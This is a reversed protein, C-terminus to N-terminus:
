KEENHHHCASVNGVTGLQWHFFGCFDTEHASNEDEYKIYAMFYLLGQGQGLQQLVEPHSWSMDLKDLYMEVDVPIQADDMKQNSSTAQMSLQNWLSDEQEM